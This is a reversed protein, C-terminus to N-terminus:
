LQFLSGTTRQTCWVWSASTTSFRKRTAQASTVVGGLPKHMLSEVRLGAELDLNQFKREGVWFLGQSDTQVPPM